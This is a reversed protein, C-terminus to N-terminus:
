CCRARSTPTAPSLRGSRALRHAAYAGTAQRLLFLALLGYTTLALPTLWRSDGTVPLFALGSTVGQTLRDPELMVVAIGALTLM